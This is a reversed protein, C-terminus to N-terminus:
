HKRSANRRDNQIVMAEGRCLKDIDSDSVVRGGASASYQMAGRNCDAIINQLEYERSYEAASQQKEREQRAAIQAELERREQEKVVNRQVRAAELHNFLGILAIAAISIGVIKGKSMHSETHESVLHRAEVLPEVDEGLTADYAARSEPNTLTVFAREIQEFRELTGVEDGHLDPRYAQGLALCRKKIEESTADMPIDLLQYYNEM